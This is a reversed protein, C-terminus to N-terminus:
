LINYVVRCVLDSFITELFTLYRSSLPSHQQQCSWTAGPCHLQMQQHAESSSPIGQTEKCALTKTRLNHDKFKLNKLSSNKRILYINFRLICSLRILVSFNFFNRSTQYIGLFSETKLMPFMHKHKDKSERKRKVYHIIIKVSLIVYQISWTSLEMIEM